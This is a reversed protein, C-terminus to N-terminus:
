FRYRILGGTQFSGVKLNAVAPLDVAGGAYRAFLGVSYVASVRYTFDVGANGAKASTKSQSDTSLAIKQSAATVTVTTADLRTRVITPGGSLALDFRTGVPVSYTVFLNVGLASQTLDDSAASVNAFRGFFVPDPLSAAASAASKSRANWLSVGVSVHNMFQYGGALDFLFGAGIKQNIDYKGTESFSTFSTSSGFSRTQPQGGVGASIYVGTDPQAAPAQARAASAAVFVFGAILIVTKTM